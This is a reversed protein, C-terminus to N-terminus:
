SGDYREANRPRAVKTGYTGHRLWRDCPDAVEEDQGDQEDPDFLSAEIQYDSDDRVDDIRISILAGGSVGCGLCVSSLFFM